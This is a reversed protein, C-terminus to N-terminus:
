NKEFEQIQKLTLFRMDESNLFAKHWEIISDLARFINWKPEWGLQDRAKSIDLKLLQSERPQNSNDNIYSQKHGWKDILYKVITNVPKEDDDNPGFNWGNAFEDNKLYLQEILLLYGSLPELVHQWPRIAYPNRIM